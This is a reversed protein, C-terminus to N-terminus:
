GDTEKLRRNGTVLNMNMNLSKREINAHEQETGDEQGM